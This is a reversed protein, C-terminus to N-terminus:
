RVAVIVGIFIIMIGAWRTPSIDENLALKSMVFLLPFVLAQIPYAQSIPIRSLIYLWLFLSVVYMTLGFMLVPSFMARAIAFVSNADANKMGIRFSIQGLVVFMVNLVGLLIYKM